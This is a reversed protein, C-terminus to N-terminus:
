SGDKPTKPFPEGPSYFFDPDLSGKGLNQHHLLLAKAQIRLDHM